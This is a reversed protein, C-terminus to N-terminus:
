KFGKYVIYQETSTTRTSELTTRIMTQFSKKIERAVFQSDEGPFIKVICTGSKKLLLLNTQHVSNLTEACAADDKIPIGSLHPSIDALILDFKLPSNTLLEERIKEDRIDGVFIEVGPIPSTEKLDIGVIRGKKGVYEKAVQLWGGAFCGLELIHQGSKILGYKKQLEILKYAARSRYGESKAKSYYQDKRNYTAM